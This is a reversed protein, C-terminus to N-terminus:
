RTLRESHGGQRTQCKNSLVVVKNWRSLVGGGPFDNLEREIELATRGMVDFIEVSLMLKGLWYCELTM